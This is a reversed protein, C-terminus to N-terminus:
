GGCTRTRCATCCPPPPFATCPCHLAPRPSHLVLGLFSCGCALGALRGELKSCGAGRGAGRGGGSGAVGRGGGCKVVPAGARVEVFGRSEPGYDNKTFHPLTRQNFGFPIRKGEVNQQGVCAIMQSINIFSGKSGATVMRVVNNTDRLSQQAMNGADDRAKNLVQNVQNEFSEMITRGPQQELDNTQLPPPPPPTPPPSLSPCPTACLRPARTSLQCYVQPGAKWVHWGGWIRAFCCGGRTRAGEGRRLGLGVWGGLGVQIKEILKKVDGKAKNMIDNIIEMTRQDAILDGIGISFGHQLLWQNITFQIQLRRAPPLPPPRCSYPCAPRPLSPCSPPTLDPNLPSLSPLLRVSASPCGPVSRRGPWHLQRVWRPSSHARRRQGM